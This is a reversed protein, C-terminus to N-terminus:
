VVLIGLLLSAALVESVPHVLGSVKEMRFFIKGVQLSAEDFRNQEHNERGFARILRLGHLTELMRQSLNANAATAELSLQKVQRSLFQVTQSILLLLCSTILTLKWSILLLLLGLTLTMCLNIAMGALVAFASCVRWSDSALTNLLKGSDHNDLYSQSVSLLQHLIASRLQHGISADIRQFLLSYSCSLANKLIVCLLISLGIWLLRSETPIGRFLGSVQGIIGTSETGMQNQILPIFLSISLGESWAALVGLILMASLVWPQLRLLPFLRGLARLFVTM